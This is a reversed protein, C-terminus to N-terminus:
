YKIFINAAIAAPQVTTSKGYIPDTGSISADIALAYGTGSTGGMIYSKVSGKKFAGSM